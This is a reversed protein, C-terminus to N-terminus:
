TKARRRGEVVADRARLETAEKSKKRRVYLPGTDVAGGGM